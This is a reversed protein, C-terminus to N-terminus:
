GNPIARPGPRNRDIAYSLSKVTGLLLDQLDVFMRTNDFAVGIQGALQELTELHEPTFAASRRSGVSLVGV